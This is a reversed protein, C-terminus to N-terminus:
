LHRRVAGALGLFGSGLLVVSGPEPVPTYTYEVDADTVGGSWDFGVAGGIWGPPCDYDPSPACYVANHELYAWLNFFTARTRPRCM